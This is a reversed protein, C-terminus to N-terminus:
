SLIIIDVDRGGLTKLLRNFIGTNLIIRPLSFHPKGICLTTINLEAAKELIADAISANEERLMVAGSEIALQFNNHLHRQTALPIKDPNEAPTQVYLVWWHANYYSALRATKRIVHRATDANSSICALMREHRGAAARPLETEVKRGVHAAAEHLALERLQLIYEPQFFQRLALEVKEAAYIKGERLRQILEEASLDINIVEDVERLVSDPVRERVEVGTIDRVADNLSELHQINLASIVNIGADLIDLVDQWRKANKGGEVNTHALEDM